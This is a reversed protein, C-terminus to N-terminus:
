VFVVHQPIIKINHSLKVQIHMFGFISKIGSLNYPNRVSHQVINIVAYNYM